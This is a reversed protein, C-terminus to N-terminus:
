SSGIVCKGSIEDHESSPLRCQYSFAILSLIVNNKKYRIIFSYITIDHDMLILLGSLLTNSQLLISWIHDSELNLCCQYVVGGIVVFSDGVEWRFNNSLFAIVTNQLSDLTHVLLMCVCLHQSILSTLSIMTREEEIVNTEFAICIFVILLIFARCILNWDFLDCVIIFFIVVVNFM